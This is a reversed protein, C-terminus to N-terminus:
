GSLVYKEIRERGQEKGPRFGLFLPYEVYGHDNLLNFVYLIVQM